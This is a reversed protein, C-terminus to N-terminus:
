FLASFHEVANPRPQSGHVMDDYHYAGAIEVTYESDLLCTPTVYDAYLPDDSTDATLPASEDIAVLSGRGSASARFESQSGDNPGLPAAGVVTDGDLIAVWVTYLGQDFLDWAHVTVHTGKQVCKLTASGHVDNFRNWTVHTGDPARLASDEHDESDDSEFVYADYLPTGSPTQDTPHEGFEDVVSYTAPEFYVTKREHKASVPLVFSSVAAAGVLGLAARRSLSHRTAARFPGVPEPTM